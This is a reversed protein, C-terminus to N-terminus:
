FKKGHKYPRSKNYEHKAAIAGALDMNRRQAIDMIRIIADAAEEEGLTFAPIKASMPNGDRAAELWESLEAHVLCIKEGINYDDDEWFGHDVANQHVRHMMDEFDFSSM